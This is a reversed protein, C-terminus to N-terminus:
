ESDGHSRLPFSGRPGREGGDTPRYGVQFHTEFRTHTGSSSLNRFFLTLSDLLGTRPSLMGIKNIGIVLQGEKACNGWGRFQACVRVAVVNGEKMLYTLLPTRYRPKPLSVDLFLLPNDWFLIEGTLEEYDKASPSNHHSKWVLSVGNVVKPTEAGPSDLIM